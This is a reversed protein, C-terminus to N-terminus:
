PQWFRMRERVEEIDFPKPLFYQVLGSRQYENLCPVHRGSMLIRLAFPERGQLYRLIETGKLDPLDYDVLAGHFSTSSIHRLAEGGDRAVFLDFDKNLGRVIAKSLLEHDEVVLLRARKGKINIPRKLDM